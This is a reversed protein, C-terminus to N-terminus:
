SPRDLHLTYELPITPTVDLVIEYRQGQALILPPGVIGYVWSDLAPVSGPFLRYINDQRHINEAVLRLVFGSATTNPNYVTLLNIRYVPGDPAESVLIGVPETSVLLGFANPHSPM